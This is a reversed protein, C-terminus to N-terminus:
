VHGGVSESVGKSGDLLNGAPTTAALGRLGELSEGFPETRTDDKLEGSPRRSCFMPVSAAAEEEDGKTTEYVRLRAIDSLADALTVVVTGKTGDFSVGVRKGDLSPWLTWGNSQRLDDSLYPPLNIQVAESPHAGPDLHDDTYADFTVDWHPRRRAWAQIRRRQTASFRAMPLAPSLPSMSLSEPHSM